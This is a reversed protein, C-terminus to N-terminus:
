RRLETVTHKSRGEPLRVFDSLSAPKISDLDPKQAVQTTKSLDELLKERIARHYTMTM